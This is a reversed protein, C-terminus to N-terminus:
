DVISSALTAQGYRPGYPIYFLYGLQANGGVDAVTARICDFGNDVDLEETKVDVVWILDQEASTGNTYTNSATQTTRTWTGTGSLDTAAQKRYIVTFNLAKADSAAVVTSQQLTLTPDDAATGVSSVFVVACGHWNKLSITDGTNNGTQLDVVPWGEIIDHLQLFQEAM